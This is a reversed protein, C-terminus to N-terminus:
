KKNDYLVTQNHKKFNHADERMTVGYSFTLSWPMSFHMYGDDDTEAKGPKDEVAKQGKAMVPDINSDLGTDDDDADDTDKKKKDDGGGFLKKLKEPNLTYSINQSM